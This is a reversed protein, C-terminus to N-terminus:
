LNIIILYPLPEYNRDQSIRVFQKFAFLRTPQELKFINVPQESLSM